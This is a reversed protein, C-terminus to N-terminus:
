GREVHGLRRALEGPTGLHLLAYDAFGMAQQLVGADLRREEDLCLRAAEVRLTALAASLGAVVTRLGRGQYATWNGFLRAALYHRVPRAFSAWMPAVYADFGASLPAEHPEDPRLEAPIARRVHEARHRSDAFPVAPSAPGERAADLATAVRAALTEGGPRWPRIHETMDAMRAIATEPTAEDALLALAARQWARYGDLDTLMGPRLLPPLANTADLGELRIGGTLRGPAEVISLTRDTRFPLAAVTPCYHSLSVWTADPEILCVRPFHQCSSPLAAHGLDRHVVCGRTERDYFVCDGDHHLALLTVSERPGHPTTVFPDDRHNDSPLRLAGDRLAASLRGHESASVPIPWASTCCRGMQQCLYDAHLSLCYVPM